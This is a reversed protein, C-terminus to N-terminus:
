RFRLVDLTTLSIIEAAAPLLHLSISPCLHWVEPSHLWRNVAAFDLSKNESSLVFFDCARLIPDNMDLM